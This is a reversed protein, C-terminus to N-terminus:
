PEGPISLHGPLAPGCLLSLGQPSACLAQSSGQETAGPWIILLRGRLRSRCHASMHLVFITIGAGSVDCSLRSTLPSPLQPPADCVVVRPVEHSVPPM